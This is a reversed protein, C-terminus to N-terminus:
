PTPTPSSKIPWTHELCVDSKGDFEKAAYRTQFELVSGPPEDSILMAMSNCFHYTSYFWRNDSSRALFLHDITGINAGHRHKYLLYEGNTMLLLHDGIWRHDGVGISTKLQEMEDAIAQNTISQATLFVLSETKWVARAQVLKHKEFALWGLALFIVTFLGGLCFIVKRSVKAAINTTHTRNCARRYTDSKTM